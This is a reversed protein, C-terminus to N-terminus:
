RRRRCYKEGEDVEDLYEGDLCIPCNGKCSTRGCLNYTDDWLPVLNAQFTLTEEVLPEIKQAIEQMQGILPVLDDKLRQFQRILEELQPKLDCSEVKLVFTLITWPVRVHAPVRALAVAM